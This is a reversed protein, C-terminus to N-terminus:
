LVLGSPAYKTSLQSAKPSTAEDIGSTAENIVRSFSSSFINSMPM